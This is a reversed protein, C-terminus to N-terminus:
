TDLSCAGSFVIQLGALPRRPDVSSRRRRRRQGALGQSGLASANGTPPSLAWNGLALEAGLSPQQPQVEPESDSGGAVEDGSSAGAAGAAEEQQQQQQQQRYPYPPGRHRQNRDGSGPTVAALAAEREAAKETIQLCHWCTHGGGLTPCAPQPLPEYASRLEKKRQREKRQWIASLRAHTLAEALHQLFEQM